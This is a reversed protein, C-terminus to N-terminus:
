VRQADRSWRSSTMAMAAITRPWMLPRCEIALFWGPQAVSNHRVAAVDVNGAAALVDEFRLPSVWMDSKWEFWCGVQGAPRRSM